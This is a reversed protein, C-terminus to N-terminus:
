EIEITEINQKPDTAPISVTLTGNKFKAKIDSSNAGSPFTFSRSFRGTARERKLIESSEPIESKREGSITVVGNKYIINISEKEIGPLDAVLYLNEDDKFLDIRPTFGGESDKEPVVRDIFEYIDEGLKQLRKEFNSFDFNTM